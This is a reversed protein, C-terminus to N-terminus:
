PWRICFEPTLHKYFRPPSPQFTQKTMVATLHTPKILGEEIAAEDILHVKDIFARDVPDSADFNHGFCRDIFIDVVNGYALFLDFNFKQVLLPLIDQARIGEFSEV